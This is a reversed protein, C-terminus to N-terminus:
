HKAAKKTAKPKAKSAKRAAAGADVDDGAGRDASEDDFSPGEGEGGLGLLSIVAREDETPDNGQVLGDDLEGLLRNAESELSSNETSVQLFLKQGDFEHSQWERPFAELGDESEFFQQMMSAACDICVQIKELANQKRANFDLSVEFNAQMLRGTELYGAQFCLEEPYIRGAIIIKGSKAAQEFNEEFVERIQGCLETPLSTWKLSSKLRPIM